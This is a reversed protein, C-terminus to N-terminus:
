TSLQSWRVHLQLFILDVLGGSLKKVQLVVIQGAMCFHCVVIYGLCVCFMRVTLWDTLSSIWSHNKLRCYDLDNVWQVLYRHWPMLRIPTKCLDICLDLGNYIELLGYSLSLRAQATSDTMNVWVYAFQFPFRSYAGPWPNYPTCCVCM